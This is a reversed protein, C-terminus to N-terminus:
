KYIFIDSSLGRSFLVGILNTESESRFYIPNILRMSPEAEGRWRQSKAEGDILNILGIYKRLSDTVLRILTKNERPSDLSM